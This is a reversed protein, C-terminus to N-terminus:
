INGQCSHIKVTENQKMKIYLNGEVEIPEYLDLAGIRRHAEKVPIGTSLCYTISHVPCKVTKNIPCFEGISLDGVEPMHPCNKNICYFRGEVYFVALNDKVFVGAKKIDRTPALFHYDEDTKM